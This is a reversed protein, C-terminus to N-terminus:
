FYDNGIIGRERAELSSLRSKGWKDSFMLKFFFCMLKFKGIRFVKHLHVGVYSKWTEKQQIAHYKSPEDM